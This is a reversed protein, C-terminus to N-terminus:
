PLLFYLIRSPYPLRYQGICELIRAQLVGSVSFGSLGWDMPDCLQVHCFHGWMCLWRVKKKGRCSQGLSPQTHIHCLQKPRLSRTPAVHPPVRVAEAAPTIARDSDKKLGRAALLSPRKPWDKEMARGM